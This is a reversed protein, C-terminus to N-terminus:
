VQEKRMRQQVSVLWRVSGGLCALGEFYRVEPLRNNEIEELVRIVNDIGDVALAENEGIALAEGGTRAWSPFTRFVRILKRSPVLRKM